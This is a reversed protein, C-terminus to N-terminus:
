GGGTGGRDALVRCPLIRGGTGPLAIGARVRDGVPWYGAPCYRGRLYGRALVGCNSIGVRLLTPAVALDQGEDARDDQKETGAPDSLGGASCYSSAWSPAAPVLVGSRGRRRLSGQADGAEIRGILSFRLGGSQLAEDLGTGSGPM